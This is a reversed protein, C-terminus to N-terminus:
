AKRLTALNFDTLCFDREVDKDLDHARLLLCPEPHWDTSGYWFRIPRFRRTAVEGRWNRYECSLEVAPRMVMLLNELEIREGDSLPEPTDTISMTRDVNQCPCFEDSGGCGCQKGQDIQWQSRM